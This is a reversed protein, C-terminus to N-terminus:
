LSSGRLIARRSATKQEISEAFPAGIAGISGIGQFMWLELVDAGVGGDVEAVGLDPALGHGRERVALGRQTLPHLNGGGHAGEGAAVEEGGRGAGEARGGQAVAEEDLGCGDLDGPM